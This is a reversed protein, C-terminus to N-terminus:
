RSVIRTVLTSLFENFNAKPEKSLELGSMIWSAKNVSNNYRRVTTIKLDIPEGTAPSVRFVQEMRTSDLDHLLLVNKQLTVATGEGMQTLESFPSESFIEDMQKMAEADMSYYEDVSLGTAQRRTVSMMAQHAIKRENKTVLEIWDEAASYAESYLVCRAVCFQSAAWSMFFLALAIGIWAPVKGGLDDRRYCAGLGCAGFFIALLPLIVLFPSMMTGASSVGLIAAIIALINQRRYESLQQVEGSNSFRSPAQENM